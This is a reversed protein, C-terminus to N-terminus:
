LISVIPMCLECFFVCVQLNAIHAQRVHWLQETTRM